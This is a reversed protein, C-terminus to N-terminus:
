RVSYDQALLNLKTKTLMNKALSKGGQFGIVHSCKRINANDPLCMPYPSERKGLVIECGLAKLLVEDQKWSPDPDSAGIVVTPVQQDVLWAVAPHFETFYRHMQPHAIFCINPPMTPRLRAALSGKQASAEESTGTETEDPPAEDAQAETFSTVAEEMTGKFLRTISRQRGESFEKLLVDKPLAEENPDPIRKNNPDLEGIFGIMVVELFEVGPMRSLLAGPELWRLECTTSAGIFWMSLHKSSSLMCPHGALALQEISWLISCNLSVNWDKGDSGAAEGKEYAITDVDTAAWVVGCNQRVDERAKAMKEQEQKDEDEMAAFMKRLNKKQAQKQKTYERDVEQQMQVSASHGPEVELLDKLTELTEELRHMARQASAKRYLAKVVLHPPLADRRALAKEVSRDAAEYDTKKMYAMAINLNLTLDLESLETNQMAEPGSCLTSLISKLGGQWYKIAKDYKGAKFAENGKEKAEAPPYNPLRGFPDLDDDSDDGAGKVIDYGKEALSKRLAEMDPPPVDSAEASRDPELGLPDAM